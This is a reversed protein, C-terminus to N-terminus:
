AAKRELYKTVARRVAPREARLAQAIRASDPSAMQEICAVIEKIRAANAAEVNKSKAPAASARAKAKAELSATRATAQEATIPSVKQAPRKNRATRLPPKKAPAAPRTSSWARYAVALRAEIASTEQGALRAMHLEAVIARVTALQPSGQDQDRM